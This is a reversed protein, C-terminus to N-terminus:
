PEGARADDGREGVASCEDGKPPRVGHARERGERGADDAVHADLRGAHERGVRLEVANESGGTAGSGSEDPRGRTPTSSRYLFMWAM